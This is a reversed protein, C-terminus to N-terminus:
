KHLKEKLSEKMLRIFEEEVNETERFASHYGAQFKEKERGSIGRYTDAALESLMAIVKKRAAVIVAAPAAMAQEFVDLM